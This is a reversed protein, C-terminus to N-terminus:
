LSEEVRDAVLDMEIVFNDKILKDGLSEFFSGSRTTIGFKTRDVEAKAFTTMRNEGTQINALVTVPSMVGRVSLDGEIQYNYDEEGEYPLIRTIDFLAEPYDAVAFYDDAMLHNVIKKQASPDDIDSCTISKMDIVFSGHKPEGDEVVLEGRKLSIGGMHGGVTKFAEWYLQSADLDVQYVGDELAVPEAQSVIVAGEDSLAYALFLPIFALFLLPIFKRM